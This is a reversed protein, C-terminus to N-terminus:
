PAEACRFGIYPGREIPLVECRNSSRLAPGPNIWSGGRLVKFHGKAPGQPDQAPATAYYNADYWDACWEWVNGALDLVGYPSAGAPFSGVPALGAYRDEAGWLNARKTDFTSSWPWLRADDGRASKEWEAETPLRAGRWTCYAQADHWNVYVVPHAPIATSGPGQPRRWSIGDEAEPANEAEAATQYGTDAVFAAFHANDVELRDIAFASMEVQHSPQEDTARPHNTGMTFPGAPVQVQATAQGILLLGCLGAIFRYQLKCLITCLRAPSKKDM